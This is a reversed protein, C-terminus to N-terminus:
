LKQLDLLSKMSGCWPERLSNFLLLLLLLWWFQLNRKFVLIPCLHYCPLLSFSCDDVVM